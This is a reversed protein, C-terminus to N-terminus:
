YRTNHREKEAFPMFTEKNTETRSESPRNTEPIVMREKYNDEARHIDEDLRKLEIGVQENVQMATWKDQVRDDVRKAVENAVGEPLGAAELNEKVDDKDFKEENGTRSIIKVLFNV